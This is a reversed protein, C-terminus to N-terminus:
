QDVGQVTEWEGKSSMAVRHQVAVARCMGQGEAERLIGLMERARRQGDEGDYVQVKEPDAGIRVTVDDDPLRWTIRYHHEVKSRSENRAYGPLPPPNMGDIFADAAAADPEDSLDVHMEFTETPRMSEIDQLLVTIRRVEDVTFPGKAVVTKM